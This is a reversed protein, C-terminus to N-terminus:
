KNKRYFVKGKEEIVELAKGYLPFLHARKAFHMLGFSSTHQHPENGHRLCIVDGYPPDNYVYIDYYRDEYLFSGVYSEIGHGCHDKFM